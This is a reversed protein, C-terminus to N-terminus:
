KLKYKKKPNRKHHFVSLIVILKKSEDVTYIIAFPFKKAYAEHFNKYGIKFQLPQKCILNIVSDISEIFKLALEDSEIGYWEISNEYEQQARPELIYQYM